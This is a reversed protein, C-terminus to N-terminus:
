EHRTESGGIHQRQGLLELVWEDIFAILLVFTGLAMALQPLWLPTADNGTSIDNFAHSELVLRLAFPVVILVHSVVLAGFSGSLGAESFFRLFREVTRPWLSLGILSIRPLIRIRRM